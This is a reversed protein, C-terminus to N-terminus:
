TKDLVHHGESSARRLGQDAGPTQEDAFERVWVRIGWLVPLLLTVNVVALLPLTTLGTFGLTIAVAASALTLAAAVRYLRRHEDPIQLTRMLLAIGVMALAASAALLWRAGPSVGTGATAVINLTAAGVATIGMAVPLHLYSWTLVGAVKETPLKQSVFDFYLWWLGIAVLMGLAGTLGVLWTLQEHGAVGRVGAVVVEGLVIITFLDHREVAAATPRMGMEHQARVKPDGRGVLFMTLPAGVSLFLGVGWLPLRTGAPVFASGAFVITSVLFTAAYPYSLPRHDADHVGTRWWLYTLILQYAAFSLAFGAAGGRFADAAFVAMAAVTFMQAFTFIRTRIDNNGHLEHYMSGNLWAIWVLGFLFAAEAVGRPDAHSALHHATEAVVVVYVLDYFLELFTVRREDPRRGLTRPPQWWRRFGSSM